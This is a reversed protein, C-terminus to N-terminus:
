APTGADLEPQQLSGQRQEDDHQCTGLHSRLDAVLLTRADLGDDRHVDGVGHTGLVNGGATQVTRLHNDLVEDVLERVVLDAEDDKGAIGEHLQRDGAIIHRRLHEQRVDVRRHHGCLTGIDGPGDLHRGMAERLILLHALGDDDNSVTLVVLTAGELGRLGGTGGSHTDVDKAHAGRLTSGDGDGTGAVIHEVIRAVGHHRGEVLRHATLHCLGTAAGEDVNLVVAAGLVQEVGLEVFQRLLLNVTGDIAVEVLLEPGKADQRQQEEDQLHADELALVRQELAHREEASLFTSHCQEKHQHRHTSRCLGVALVQTVAVLLVTGAVKVVGLHAVALRELLVVTIGLGVVVQAVGQQRLMLVRSGDLLKLCGALHLCVGQALRLGEMVKADDALLVLHEALSDLGVLLRETQVGGIVLCAVVELEALVLQLVLLLVLVLLVLILLLVLLVVLFVLLLLVLLLLILLLLVLLM